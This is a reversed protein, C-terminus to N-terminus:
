YYNMFKQKRNLLKNIAINVITIKWINIKMYRLKNEKLDGMANVVVTCSARPTYKVNCASVCEIEHMSSAQECM